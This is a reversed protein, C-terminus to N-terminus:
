RESISRNGCCTLTSKCGLSPLFRMTEMAPPLFFIPLRGPGKLRLVQLFFDFVVTCGSRAACQLHSSDRMLVYALRMDKNANHLIWSVTLSHNYEIFRPLLALGLSVTTGALFSIREELWAWFSPDDRSKYFSVLFYLRSPLERLLHKYASLVRQLYDLVTAYNKRGDSFDTPDGLGIVPVRLAEMHKAAKECWAIRDDWSFMNSQEDKLAQLQGGTRTLAWEITVRDRGTVAACVDETYTHFYSTIPWQVERMWRLMPLNGLRAAEEAYYGIKSGDLGVHLDFPSKTPYLAKLVAVTGHRALLEPMRRAWRDPSKMRMDMRILAFARSKTDSQSVMKLSLDDLMDLIFYVTDTILQETWHRRPEVQVDMVSEEEQM